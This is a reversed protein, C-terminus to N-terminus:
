PGCLCEQNMEVSRLMLGSGPDLYAFPTLSTTVQCCNTQQEQHQFTSLGVRCIEPQTASTVNVGQACLCGMCDTYFFLEPHIVWSDWGLDNITVRYSIETCNLKRTLFAEDSSINPHQSSPKGGLNMLHHGWLHRLAAARGAPIHPEVEMGMAQLM